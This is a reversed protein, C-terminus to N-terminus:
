NGYKNNEEKQKTKQPLSYEVPFRILCLIAIKKSQRNDFMPILNTILQKFNSLNQTYLQSNRMLIHVPNM